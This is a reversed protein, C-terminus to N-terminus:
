KVDDWLESTSWDNIQIRKRHTELESTSEEAIDLRNNIWNVYKKDWVNYNKGRSTQTMDKEINEM